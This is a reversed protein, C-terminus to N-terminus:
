RTRRRVIYKSTIKKKKRTKYGLTPKGWPTVPGPRGIPARGEGGGHPHDVPNMVTGRVTPRIGMHRKRGAKGLKLNKHEANGLQGLTAMCKESVMRMEGSPLKLTAYGSERAVLQASCGASRVIKAGNGPILEINHVVSGLPLNKLPMANGAKIEADPGSLVKDGVNLDQPRLIYRREGDAYKLLSIHVNRNPDYEVTEVIAPIGFKNRKFDIIRYFRRHRGGKHRCTIRGNNNRGSHNEIKGLLPKYPKDTTLEKYDSVSMGRQGPSTPKLVKIGM